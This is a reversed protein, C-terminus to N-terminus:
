LGGTPRAARHPGGVAHQARGHHAHVRRGGCPDGAAAARARRSRRGEGAPHLEGCGGRQSLGRHRRPAAAPGACRRARRPRDGPDLHLGVPAPGRDGPRGPGRLGRDGGAAGPTAGAPARRQHVAGHGPGPRRLVATRRPRAPRAAPPGPRGAACRD